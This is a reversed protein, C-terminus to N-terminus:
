DGYVEREILINSATEKFSLCLDFERGVLMLYEDITASQDRIEDEIAQMAGAITDFEVVEVHSTAGNRTMLWSPTHDRFLLVCKGKMRSPDLEDPLDKIDLVFGYYAKVNQHNEVSIAPIDSSLLKDIDWKSSAAYFRYEDVVICYINRRSYKGYAEKISEVVDPQAGYTM